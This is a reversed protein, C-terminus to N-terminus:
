RPFERRFYLNMFLNLRKILTFGSSQQELTHLKLIRRNNSHILDDLPIVLSGIHYLKKSSDDVFLYLDFDIDKELEITTTLVFTM